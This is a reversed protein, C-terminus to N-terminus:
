LITRIQNMRSGHLQTYNVVSQNHEATVPQMERESWKTPKWWYVLHQPLHHGGPSARLCCPSVAVHGWLFSVFPSAVACAERPPTYVTNRPARFEGEKNALSKVIDAYLFNGVV